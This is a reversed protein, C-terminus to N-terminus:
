RITVQRGNGDITRSMRECREVNGCSGDFRFGKRRYFAAARPNDAMVHLRVEVHGRDAAHRVAEELLADAVGAGRAHGAVWMAVVEPAEPDAGPEPDPELLTAAGLPLGDEREALLVTQGLRERWTEETFDVERAFSSGYASPADLLMALRVARYCAWDARTLRRVSWRVTM